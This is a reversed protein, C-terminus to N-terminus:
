GGGNRDAEKQAGSRTIFGCDQVRVGNDHYIATFVVM